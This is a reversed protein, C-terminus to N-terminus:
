PPWKKPPPCISNFSKSLYDLKAAQLSDRSATTLIPIVVNKDQLPDPIDRFGDDMGLWDTRGGPYTLFGEQLSFQGNYASSLSLSANFHDPYSKTVMNVSGGTFNGPKDPTYSKVTVINEILNAAFLDLHVARKNPDTSPLEAGNLQTTSYREGLGRVYVYKGDVVTAGTVKSMAQAADSSGSRSM